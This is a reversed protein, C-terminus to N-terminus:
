LLPTDDKLASMELGEQEVIQVYLVNSPITGSKAARLSTEGGSSFWLWRDGNEDTTGGALSAGAIPQDYGDTVQFRTFAQAPVEKPGSLRLAIKPIFPEEYPYFAWLVEDGEKVELQCGGVKALAQNLYLFWSSQSINVSVPERIIQTVLFDDLPSPIWQGDWTFLEMKSADDLAATAVPVPSPHAGNNTGDCRHKTGGSSLTIDHGNTLVNSRDYLTYDNGIVRVNVHVPTNGSLAEARVLSILFCTLFTLTSLVM